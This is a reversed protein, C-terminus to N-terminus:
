TNEMKNPYQTRMHPPPRGFSQNLRATPRLAPLICCVPMCLVICANWMCFLSGVDYDGTQGPAVSRAESYARVFVFDGPPLAPM